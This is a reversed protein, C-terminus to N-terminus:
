IKLLQRTLEYHKLLSVGNRDIKMNLQWMKLGSKVANLVAKFIVENRETVKPIKFLPADFLFCTLLVANECAELRATLELIHKVFREHYPIRQQNKPIAYSDNEIRLMELPTKVEVYTNDIKFDLKSNGTKQERLIKHGNKVIDDLLGHRFFYEVYRNAANQNIGIWSKAGDISIAEVTYATKRNPNISEALLCPADNPRINGIRGTTPCHCLFIKRNKEVQMVFRNPRHIIKGVELPSKFKYM